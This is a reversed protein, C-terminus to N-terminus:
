PDSPQPNSDRRARQTQSSSLRNEAMRRESSWPPNRIGQDMPVDNVSAPAGRYHELLLYKTM